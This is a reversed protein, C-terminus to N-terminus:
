VGNQMAPKDENSKSKSGLRTFFLILHFTGILIFWGFIAMNSAVLYFLLGGVFYDFMAKGLPEKIAKFYLFIQKLAGM